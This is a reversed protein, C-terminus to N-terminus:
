RLTTVAIRWTAEEHVLVHVFTLRRPPASRAEFRIPVVCVSPTVLRAPGLTKEAGQIWNKAEEATAHLYEVLSDGGKAVTGDKLSIVMPEHLYLRTLAGDDARLFASTWQLVTMDLATREAQSLAPDTQGSVLLISVVAAASVM